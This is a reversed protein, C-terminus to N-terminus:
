KPAPDPFKFGISLDFTGGVPAAEFLTKRAGDPATYVYSDKIIPVSLTAGVTLSMPFAWIGLRGRAAGNLLPRVSSSSAVFGSGSSAVFGAQGGACLAGQFLGKNGALPCLYASGEVRWFRITGTTAKSQGALALRPTSKESALLSGTGEIPIFKPPDLVIGAIGGGGIPTLGLGVIGGVYGEFRFPRKAPGPKAAVPVYVTKTTEHVIIKPPLVPPEIPKSIPKEPPAPSLADPDIMLAIALSVPEDLAHCDTEDSVLERKGVIDGSSKAVVITARYGRPTKKEVRGEISLDADAASVIAARRLLAEVRQALDHTGICSETGELRAWSLSSTKKPSAAGSAEAKPVPTPEDARASHSAIALAGVFAASVVVRRSATSRRVFGRPSPLDAHTLPEVM